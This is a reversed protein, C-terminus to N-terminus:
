PKKLLEALRHRDVQEVHGDTFAVIVKSQGEAPRVYLLPTTAEAGAPLRGGSPAVYLFKGGAVDKALQGHLYQPLKPDSLSEPYRGQDVHYMMLAMAIQRVQVMENAARARSRASAAAPAALWVPVPTLLLGGAVPLSPLSGYGEFTIGDGDPCVAAIQPWLYKEISSLPPLWACAAEVPTEGRIGNAALTWGALLWPYVRRAVMPTNVYLLASPKGAIRLRAKRFTEDATIPKAGGDAIAAQIVQPYAALYLRDKHIAWAPAVPLPARRSPLALYHIEARDCRLIEITPGTRGPRPHPRPAGADTAAPGTPPAPPAPPQLRAEIKRVAAALREADRVQVSLLTGTLFGGLSPAGCLVWTDGLPALVDAPISVGLEKGAEAVAEDLEAAARADVAEVARRLEAYVAGPSVKAVALWDADAPVGALDAEAIPPGALLMLLGKQPAPVPGRSPTFVRCRCYLGRDVVCSAGAVAAVRDLGMAEAMRRAKDAPAEGRAPGGEGAPAAPLLPEIRELMASVDVYYAMQADPGGVAKMRAAFRADDALSKGAGPEALERAAGEGAALFFVDGLYGYAVEPGRRPKYVRYSVTGAAADAFVVEDSKIAALLAEMHRAFAERDKGLDILLALQPEPERGPPRRLDILAVALPRQWAIACMEAASRVAQRQAGSPAARELGARLAGLLEGAGPDLLLQGFASGDFPLSRGAWAVYAVTRAPLRDALPPGGSVGAAACLLAAALSVFRSTMPTTEERRGRRGGVGSM